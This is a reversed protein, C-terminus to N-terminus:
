SSGSLRRPLVADVIAGLDKRSLGSVEDECLVRRVRDAQVRNLLEHAARHPQDIMGRWSTTLVFLPASKAALVKAVLEILVDDAAHLDEIVILLPIGGSALRELETAVEAVLDANSAGPGDASRHQVETRAHGIGWKGLLVLLGVGPVAVNAASAVLSLADGIAAEGVAGKHRQVTRKARSKRSSLARYRREIADRREDFRELDHVLANLYRGHRSSCSIGWWFWSPTADASMTSLPPHVRKRQVTVVDGTEALISPPWYPPEPQAVALRAYFEQIIRTKGWGTNAELSWWSPVHEACVRGFEAVVEDVLKRHGEGVFPVSV